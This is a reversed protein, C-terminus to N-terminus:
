WDKGMTVVALPVAIGVAWQDYYVLVMTGVIVFAAIIWLMWVRMLPTATPTKRNAARHQRTTPDATKPRCNPLGIIAILLTVILATTM